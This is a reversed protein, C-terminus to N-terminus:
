KISIQGSGINRILYIGCFGQALGEYDRPGSLSLVVMWNSEIDLRESRFSSRDGVFVEWPDQPWKREIRFSM